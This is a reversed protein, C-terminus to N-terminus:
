LAVIVAIGPFSMRSTGTTVVEDPSEGAAVLIDHLEITAIFIPSEWANTRALQGM